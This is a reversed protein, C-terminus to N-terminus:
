CPTVWRGEGQENGEDRKERSYVTSLWIRRNSLSSDYIVFFVKDGWEDENTHVDQSNCVTAPKITTALILPVNSHQIYLIHYLTSLIIRKDPFVLYYNRDIEAMSPNSPAANPEIVRCSRDSSIEPGPCRSVLFLIAARIWCTFRNMAERIQIWKRNSKCSNSLKQLAKSIHFKIQLESKDVRAHWVNPTVKSIMKNIAFSLIVISIMFHLM